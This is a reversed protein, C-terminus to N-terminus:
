FGALIEHVTDVFYNPDTIALFPEVRHLFQQEQSVAFAIPAGSAADRVDVIHAHDRLFVFLCTSFVM